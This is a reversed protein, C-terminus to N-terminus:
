KSTRKKIKKIPKQYIETLGNFYEIKTYYYNVSVLNHKRDIKLTGTVKASKIFVIYDGNKLKKYNKLISDCVEIRILPRSKYNSYILMSDSGKVRNISEM